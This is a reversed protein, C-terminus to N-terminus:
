PRSRHTTTSSEVATLSAILNLSQFVYGIRRRRLQALASRSLSDLRRDDVPVDGDDPADLGGALTLLTSKGSGSPGM